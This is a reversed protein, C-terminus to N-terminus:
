QRDKQNGLIAKVVDIIFAALALTFMAFTLMLMLADAVSLLAGGETYIKIM